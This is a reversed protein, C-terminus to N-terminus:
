QIAIPPASAVPKSGVRWVGSYRKPNNLFSEPTQGNQGRRASADNLESKESSRRGVQNKRYVAKMVTGVVGASLHLSHVSSAHGLGLQGFAPPNALGRQFAPAGLRVSRQKELEAVLHAAPNLINFSELFDRQASRGFGVAPDALSCCGRTRCKPRGWM